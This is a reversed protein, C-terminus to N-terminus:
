GRGEVRYINGQGSANTKIITLVHYEGETVYRINRPPYGPRAMRVDVEVKSSTRGPSDDHHQINFWPFVLM